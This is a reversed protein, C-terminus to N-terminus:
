GGAEPGCAPLLRGPQGPAGPVAESLASGLWCALCWWAAIVAREAWPIWLSAKLLLEAPGSPKGLTLCFVALPGYPSM